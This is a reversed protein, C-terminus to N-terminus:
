AIISKPEDVEVLRWIPKTLVTNALVKEFTTFFFFKSGGAIETQSKMNTLRTENTTVVLWRGYYVGFRKQYARSKLYAVGPRVKERAFRPNDETGMDIELLFALEEMVGTQSKHPLRVTFFGDPIVKRKKSKGNANKYEV